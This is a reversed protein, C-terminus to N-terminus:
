DAEGVVPAVLPAESVPTRATRVVAAVCGAAAITALLYSV